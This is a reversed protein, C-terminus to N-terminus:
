IPTVMLTPVRLTDYVVIKEKFKLTDGQFVVKDLYNGVNYVITDGNLKTQLVAYNARVLYAGEEQGVIRIGSVLHRYFHRSYINAGRHATIRDELMGKSDCFMLSTEYGRDYNDRSIIKYVCDEVFFGPWEELRNDDICEIYTYFLEEISDKVRTTDVTM